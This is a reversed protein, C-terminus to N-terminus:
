IARSSLCPLSGNAEGHLFMSRRGLSTAAMCRRIRWVLAGHGVGGSQLTVIGHAPVHWVSCPQMSTLDWIPVLHPGGSGRQSENEEREEMSVWAAECPPASGDLQLAQSASGLLPWLLSQKLQRACLTIGDSPQRPHAAASTHRPPGRVLKGPPKQGSGRVESERFSQVVDEEGVEEV